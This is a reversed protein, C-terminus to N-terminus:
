WAWGGFKNDCQQGNDNITTGDTLEITLTGTASISNRRAETMESHNWTPAIIGTVLAHDYKGSEKPTVNKVTVNGTYTINEFYQNGIGIIGGVNGSNGIVDLNSQINKVVRGWAVTSAVSGLAGGVGSGSLESAKVNSVYSGADVDIVIDSYQTQLAWNDTGSGSIGGSNGGEITVKGTLNVNHIATYGAQWYSSQATMVQGVIAGASNKAYIDANHINLNMIEIINGNTWTYGFLGQDTAELDTPNSAGGNVTLNSITHNQGDFVRADFPHEATGIPTWNQNGLDIDKELTITYERYSKGNNVSVALAALLEPSDIKVTKAETDTVAALQEETAVKGNWGMAYGADKDYQNSFSDHEVTDQTAYVTIAIGDISLGQYENGASEKMHGSITFENDEGALLHKEAGMAVEGITWDIAENLKADGNIGTIVVKYKLALSGNNRIRLKPLNYTCGPEWLIEEDKSDAAKVFDLTEGEADVWKEKEVDWKELVIDLTGAQIKNVGTSASDTFWAFTTGLLMAFCLFLAMVSGLLARKTQRSNTM